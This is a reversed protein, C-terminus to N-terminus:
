GQGHVRGNVHMFWIHPPGHRLALSGIYRPDGTSSLGAPATQPTAPFLIADADAFTAWFRARASALRM